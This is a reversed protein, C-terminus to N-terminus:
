QGTAMPLPYAMGVTAPVIAMLRLAANPNARRATEPALEAVFFGSKV